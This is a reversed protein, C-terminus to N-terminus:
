SYFVCYFTFAACYLYVNCFLLSVCVSLPLVTSLLACVFACYYSYNILYSFTSMVSRSLLSYYAALVIAVVVVDLDFNDVVAERNSGKCTSHMGAFITIILRKVVKVSVWWLLAVANCGCKKRKELKCTNTNYCLWSVERKCKNGEDTRCWAGCVVNDDENDNDYDYHKDKICVCAVPHTRNFSSNKDYLQKVEIHFVSM